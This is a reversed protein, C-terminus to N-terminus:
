RKKICKLMEPGRESKWVWEVNVFVLCFPKKENENTLVPIYLYTQNSRRKVLWLERYLRKPKRMCIERELKGGRSHNYSECHRYIKRTNLLLQQAVYGKSKLLGSIKSNYLHFGYRRQSELWINWISLTLKREKISYCRTLWSRDSNEKKAAQARPKNKAM